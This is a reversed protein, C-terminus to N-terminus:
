STGRQTASLSTTACCRPTADPRTPRASRRPPGPSMSLRCATNRVTIAPRALSPYSERQLAAVLQQWRKRSLPLLNEAYGQRGGFAAVGRFAVAAPLRARQQRWPSFFRENYDADLRAQVAPSILRVEATGAQLDAAADQRYRDPDAIGPPRASCGGLVTLLLLILCSRVIAPMM